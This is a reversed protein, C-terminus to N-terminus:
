RPSSRMARLVLYGGGAILLVPWLYRGVTGFAIGTLAAMVILIGGPIIAWPQRGGGPPLFCLVLFTLGIGLFLVASSEAGPMVNSLLAIVALTALTGGPIIAWWFDRRVWYVLWFSLSVLSLFLAGGFLDRVSPALDNLLLLGSAGLLPLGPFVAWWQRRDRLFVYLFALGSVGFIVGWLTAFGSFEIRGLSQLFLLLGVGILLAGAIARGDTRQM